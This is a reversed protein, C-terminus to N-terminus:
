EVRGNMSGVREPAFNLEWCEIKKDTSVILRTRGDISLLKMGSVNGDTGMDGLWMGDGSLLYIRNGADAVAWIGKGNSTKVGAVPELGNQFIASSIPFSKTVKFLRDLLVLSWEGSANMSTAAFVSSGNAGSKVHSYERRDDIVRGNDMSLLAGSREDAAIVSRGSLALARVATNGISKSQGTFTDFMMAGGNGGFCVLLQDNKSKSGPLVECALVESRVDGVKPFKEVLEMKGDFVYVQEGGVSFMAFRQQGSSSVLPRITTVGVESPLELRKRNVLKGNVSFLNVTQWGDLFLLGQTRRNADPVIAINGPKSLHNSEWILRPNLKLKSREASQERRIKAPVAAIKQRGPLVYNPFYNAVLRADRDNFYKDLYSRYKARMDDAVNNGRVTAAIASTLRSDWKDSVSLKGNYGAPKVLLDAYQINFKSDLVAVAPLSAFEFAKAAVGDFDALFNLKSRNADPQISSRLRWSTSASKREISDNGVVVAFDFDRSALSQRSKEFRQILESDSKSGDLFLLAIPKGELNRDSIKNQKLDLLTFEPALEGILNSPLPDAPAVFQNVPWVGNKPGVKEFAIEGADFRAGHFEAILNLDRVNPDTALMPDLLSNPLKARRIILNTKDVWLVLDGIQSAPCQIVFCDRGAVTDDKLKKPQVNANLWPSAVQGTLLSIAPPTLLTSNPVITENVPIREGGNLYYSAIKDRYLQEIPQSGRLFLQQNKLNETRIESVFCSLLDRNSRIQVDFINSQLQGTKSWATRWPYEEKYLRGDIMSEQKLIGQDSYAGANRYAAIVNNLIEKATPGAVSNSIRDTAQDSVVLGDNKPTINIPASNISAGADDDGITAQPQSQEGEAIDDNNKNLYGTIMYIMFGIWILAFLGQLIRTGSSASRRRGM